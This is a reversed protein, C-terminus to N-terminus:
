NECLEKGSRLKMLEMEPEPADLLELLDIWTTESKEEAEPGLCAKTFKNKVRFEMSKVEVSWSSPLGTPGGQMADWIARLDERRAKQMVEKTSFIHRRGPHRQFIRALAGWSEAGIDESSFEVKELNLLQDCNQVLAEFNQLMALSSGPYRSYFFCHRMNLTEVTSEQRTARSSLASIWDELCHWLRGVHQISQETSGVAGECDELLIFVRPTVSHFAHIPCSLTLVPDSCYPTWMRDLHRAEEQIVHLFELLLYKPRELKALLDSSIRKVLDRHEEFTKRQDLELAKKILKSVPNKTKSATELTHVSLMDLGVLSLISTPDLYVLLTEVLEPIRWVKHTADEQASMKVTRDKRPRQFVTRDKRPRSFDFSKSAEFLKCLQGSGVAM